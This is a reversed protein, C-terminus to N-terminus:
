EGVSRRSLGSRRRESAGPTASTRRPPTHQGVSARETCHQQTIAADSRDLEVLCEDLLTARARWEPPDEHVVPHDGLGVESPGQRLLGAVWEDVELLVRDVGPNRGHKGFRQNPTVARHRDAPAIMTEDHRHGIRGAQCTAARILFTSHGRSSFAITPDTRARMRTNQAM